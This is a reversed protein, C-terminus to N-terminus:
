PIQIEETNEQTKELLERKNNEIFEEKSEYVIHSSVEIKNTDRDEYKLFNIYEWYIQTYDVEVLKGEFLSNVFIIAEEKTQFWVQLSWRKVIILTQM